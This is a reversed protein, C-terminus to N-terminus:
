FFKNSCAKLILLSYLEPELNLYWSCNSYERQIKRYNKSQIATFCENQPEFGYVVGLYAWLDYM